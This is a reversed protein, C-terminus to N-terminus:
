DALLSFWNHGFNGCKVRDILVLFRRLVADVVVVVGARGTAINWRIFTADAGSPVSKRLITSPALSNNPEEQILLDARSDQSPKPLAM